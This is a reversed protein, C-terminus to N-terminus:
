KLDGFKLVKSIFFFVPLPPPRDAPEQAQRSGRLNSKKYKVQNNNLPERDFQLVFWNINSM